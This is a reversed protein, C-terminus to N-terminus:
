FVCLAVFQVPCLLVRLSDTLFKVSKTGSVALLFVISSVIWLMYPSPVELLPSHEFYEGGMVHIGECWQQFM